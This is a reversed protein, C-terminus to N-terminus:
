SSRIPIKFEITSGTEGTELLSLSGKHLDAVCKVFTLGIGFGRGHYNIDHSNTKSLLEKDFNDPFGNGSDKVTFVASSNDQISSILVSSGSRSFKIANDLLAGVADFVLKADCEISFDDESDKLIRINKRNLLNGRSSVVDCILGRSSVINKKISPLTNGMSNLFISKEALSLLDRSNLIIHNVLEHQKKDLNTTTELLEAFGVISSLPTRVEHAFLNIVDEKLREVEEVHKLRLFVRVKALLEEKEFPKIIYDDAGAEYGKLRDSIDSRASILIIKVFRQRCMEKLRRCLDFGDTDPLMIDQIILDPQSEDAVSLASAGDTAFFVKHQGSLMEKLIFLNYKDDDVVLIRPEIKKRM